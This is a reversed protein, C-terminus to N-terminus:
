IDGRRVMGSPLFWAVRRSLTLIVEQLFGHKRLSINLFPATDAM